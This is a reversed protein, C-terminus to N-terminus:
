LLERNEREAFIDISIKSLLPKLSSSLYLPPYISCYSPSYADAKTYILGKTERYYERLVSRVMLFNKYCIFM